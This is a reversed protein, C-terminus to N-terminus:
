ANVKGLGHVAAERQRLRHEVLQWDALSDVDVAAEPTSLEIHRVTCGSRAGLRQLAEPLAMRGLLYRALALPGLAALMRRPNKRHAEMRRWLEVVRRGRATPFAFLNCGCWDGDAFRLRTRRSRPFARQVSAHRVLGVVADADSEAALACFRDVVAATLLPHDGTTVLVPPQLADLVALVSGAPSDGPPLWALTGAAVRAQLAPVAGLQAAEPGCLALDAVADCAELEEVVRELMTRGMMRALVKAPVGAARAVEGPGGREGALVGAHFAGGPGAVTQAMGTL